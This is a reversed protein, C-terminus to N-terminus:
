ADPRELQPLPAARLAHRQQWYLRNAGRFHRILAALERVLATQFAATGPIARAKRIKRMQGQVQSLWMQRLGDARTLPAPSTLGWLVARRDEDPIPGDYRRELDSFTQYDACMM